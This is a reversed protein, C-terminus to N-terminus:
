EGDGIINGMDDCRSFRYKMAVDPYKDHDIESIFEQYPRAWAIGDFINKYIIIYGDGTDEDWNDKSSDRAITEITYLYKTISEDPYLEHKFHIMINGPKVTRM